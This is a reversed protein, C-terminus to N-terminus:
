AIPEPRSRDTPSRRRRAGQRRDHRPRDADVREGPPARPHRHDRGGTRRARHRARTDHDDSRTRSGDLLKTLRLRTIKRQEDAAIRLRPRRITGCGASSCTWCRPPRRAPRASSSFTASARKTTAIRTPWGSRLTADAADAVGAQEQAPGHERDAAAQRRAARTRCRAQRARWGARGSRRIRPSRRSGTPAISRGGSATPPVAMAEVSAFPRAAAMQAGLADLRLLPAARSGRRMAAREAELADRARVALRLLERPAHEARVEAREAAEPRMAARVAAPPRRRRRSFHQLARADRRRDRAARRRVRAACAAAAAHAAAAGDVARCERGRPAPARKTAACADLSCAGPANGKFHRTDVEVRRITGAAGLRVITWDHGPGRRRKTEWGDGMHTADGPMILNHRSGFFMDSCAVVVGGHEAAALDVDGRM